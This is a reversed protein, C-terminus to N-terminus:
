KGLNMSFKDLLGGTKEDNRSQFTSVFEERSKRDKSIQLELFNDILENFYDIGYSKKLHEGLVKLRSIIMVQEGSLETKTTINEKDFLEKPNTSSDENLSQFSNLQEDIM